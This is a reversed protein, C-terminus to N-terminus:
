RFPFFDDGDVRFFTLTQGLTAISEGRNAVFDM